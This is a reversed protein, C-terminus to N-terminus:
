TWFRPQNPCRRRGDTTHRVPRWPGAPFIMGLGSTPTAWSRSGPHGACWVGAAPRAPARSRAGISAWGSPSATRTERAAPSGRRRDRSCRSGLTRGAETAAQKAPCRIPDSTHPAPPSSQAGHPWRCRDARDLTGRRGENVPLGPHIPCRRPAEADPRVSVEERKRPREPLSAVDGGCPGAVGSLPRGRTEEPPPDRRTAQPVGGRRDGQPHQSFRGTLAM